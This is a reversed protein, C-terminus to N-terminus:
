FNDWDDEWDEKKKGGGAAGTSGKKVAGTGLASYKPEGSDGFSDWFDRRDEEPGGQRVPKYQPGGSNEVFRTLTEVGYKGTETVKQGVTAVTKGIEAEALKQATPQIVTENVTKAGKAVTSTFFGFGRSIAGMPDKSFDDVLGGPAEPAPTSGFGAYKGGQSPPLESPRSSNKSGLRAFYAENQEKATTASSIPAFNKSSISSTTASRSPRVRETRVWEKGDIEATLKEKYDEAFDSSYKESVSMDERFEEARSFFEQCKKNGGKEMRKIEELKFSDMTISRVFSIHVGLGRHVGACTLCIFIGFKPSAWQPAPANCDCCVNNGDRKQLNLLKNRTEPDIEWM